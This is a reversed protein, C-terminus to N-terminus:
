ISEHESTLYAALIHHRGLCISARASSPKGEFHYINAEQLSIFDDNWGNIVEAITLDPRKAYNARVAFSQTFFMVQQVDLPARPEQNAHDPPPEPEKLTAAMVIESRAVFLNAVREAKQPRNAPAVIASRLVLYTQLDGNLANCLPRYIPMDYSGSILLSGTYVEIRFSFM